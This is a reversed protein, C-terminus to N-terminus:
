LPYALAQEAAFGCWVAMGPALDLAAVEGPALDAAILETRVRVVDGRPELDLVTGPVVQLGAGSAPPAVRVSVFAPRVAIAARADPALPTESTARLRLGGETVLEGAAGGRGTLLNLAALGATFPNTPRDLVARTPGADVVRGGDMVVVRDALTFADLIDHTVILTTRNALVRRLMRRLAPAVAVDLAAMPEDLLLLKPEAALARAVAIRQAQGGSLEAPRRDALAAADVEALWEEALAASAAKGRGRSRPGFAVNERATLHPFLLAEQALLSIGRRHPPLWPGRGNGAIDFLREGNLVARGSDPRLLGALVGLLTSKGAGNPGLVAVTEGEALELEVDFGRAGVRGAFQLSM